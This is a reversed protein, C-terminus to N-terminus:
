CKRVAAAARAGIELRQRREGRLACAFQQAGRDADKARLTGDTATVRLM